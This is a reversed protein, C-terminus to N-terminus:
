AGLFTDPRSIVGTAADPKSETMPDQVFNVLRMDILGVRAIKLEQDAVAFRETM